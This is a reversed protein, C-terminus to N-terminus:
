PRGGSIPLLLIPIFNFDDVGNKELYEKVRPTGKGTTQLYMLKDLSEQHKPAGSYEEQQVSVFLLLGMSLTLPNNEFDATWTVAVGKAAPYIHYYPNNQDHGDYKPSKPDGGPGNKFEVDIDRMVLHNALEFATIHRGGTSGNPTMLFVHYFKNQGIGKTIKFPFYITKGTRNIKTVKKTSFPAELHRDHKFAPGTPEILIETARPASPEKSLVVNMFAEQTTDNLILSLNEMFEVVAQKFPTKAKSSISIITSEGPIDPIEFIGTVGRKDTKTDTKKKDTVGSPDKFEVVVEHDNIGTGESGEVVKKAWDLYPPLHTGKGGPKSTISSKEILRGRITFPKDAGKGGFRHWKWRLDEANLTRFGREDKKWSERRAVAAGLAIIPYEAALTSDYARSDEFDTELPTMGNMGMFMGTVSGAPKENNFMVVRDKTGPEEYEVRDMKGINRPYESNNNVHDFDEVTKFAWWTYFFLEGKKRAKKIESSTPGGDGGESIFRSLAARLIERLTNTEETRAM